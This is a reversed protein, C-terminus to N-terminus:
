KEPSPPNLGPDAAISVPAGQTRTHGGTVTIHFPVGLFIPIHLQGAGEERETQAPPQLGASGEWRGWGSVGLLGGEM